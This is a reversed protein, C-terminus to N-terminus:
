TEGLKPPVLKPHCRGYKYSSRRVNFVHCLTIVSFIQRLKEIISLQETLGVDLSCYSKLIENQEELRALKKKLERIEIQEPIMSSAQPAVGNIEQKLQRLWKGM